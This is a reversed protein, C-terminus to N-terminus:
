SEEEGRRGARGLGEREVREDEPEAARKEGDRAKYAKDIHVM